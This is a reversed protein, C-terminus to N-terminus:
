RGLALKIIGLSLMSIVCGFVKAHTQIFSTITSWLFQSGNSDLGVVLTDEVSYNSSTSDFLDSETSTYNNLDTDDVSDKSSSSIDTDAIDEIASTTANQSDLILSELNNTVLIFSIGRSYFSWTGYSYSMNPSAFKINNAPSSLLTTDEDFTCKYTSVFRFDMQYNSTQFLLGATNSSSNVYAARNYFEQLTDNDVIISSVECPFYHSDLGTTIYGMTGFSFTSNTFTTSSNMASTGITFYLIDGKSIVIDNSVHLYYQLSGSNTAGLTSDTLDANQGNFASQKFTDNNYTFRYNDMIPSVRTAASVSLFLYRRACMLIFGVIVGIAVKKFFDM